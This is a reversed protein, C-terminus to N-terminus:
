GRLRGHGPTGSNADFTGAGMIDGTTTTLTGATGSSDQFKLNAGIGLLQCQLGADISVTYPGTGSLTVSGLAGGTFTMLANVGTAPVNVVGASQTITVTSGAAPLVGGTWNAAHSWNGDGANSVNWNAPGATLGTWNVNHGSDTSSGSATAAHVDPYVAPLVTGGDSADSDQVSVNAWTQTKVTTLNLLWQIGQTTSLLSTTGATPSIDMISNAASTTQTLTGAGFKITIGNAPLSKFSGGISNGGTFTTNSSVNITGAAASITLPGCVTTGSNNITVTGGASITVGATLMSTANVNLVGTGNVTVLSALTAGTSTADVQLVTLNGVTTTGPIARANTLPNNVIKVTIATAAVTSTKLNAFSTGANTGPDFTQTAGGVPSAFTLTQASNQVFEGGAFSVSQNATVNAGAGSNGTQADLEGINAGNNLLTIAEATLDSQLQVDNNATAAASGITISGQDTAVPTFSVATAGNNGDFLQTLHTPNTITVTGSQTYTTGKVELTATGAGPATITGSAGGTVGVSLAGSVTAQFAGTFALTGAHTNSANSGITLNGSFTTGNAGINIKPINTSVDDVTVPISGNFATASSLTLTGTITATATGIKNNFTLANTVTLTKNSAVTLSGGVTLAGTQITVNANVVLSGGGVGATTGFDDNGSPTFTSAGNFTLTKASGVTGLQVGNAGATGANTFNVNGTVTINAGSANLTGSNTTSGDGVQLAGTSVDGQLQFTQTNGGNQNDITLNSYAISASTGPVLITGAGGKGGYFVTGTGATDKLTGTVTLPTTTSGLMEITKTNYDLTAPTNVAISQFLFTTDSGALQVTDSAAATSVTLNGYNQSTTENDTFTQGTTGDFNFTVGSGANAGHLVQGTANTTWNGTLALVKGNLDLKTNAGVNVNSAQAATAPNGVQVTAVTTALQTAAGGGVNFNVSGLNPFPSATGAIQPGDMTFARLNPLAGGTNVTLTSTSSLTPGTGAGSTGLDVSGGNNVTLGGNIVTATAGNGLTVTGNGNATLGGNFTDTGSTCTLAAASAGGGVTTGTSLVNTGTGLTLTGGANILTGGALTINSANNGTVANSISTAGTVSLSAAASTGLNLTSAANASNVNLGGSVTLTLGNAVTVGAANPGAADLTLASAITPSDTQFTVSGGSKNIDLNAFNGVTALADVTQANSGTLQYTAGGNTFTGSTSAWNGQVQVTQTGTSNTLTGGNVTVNGEILPSQGALDLTAGSVTIGATLTLGSILKVTHTFPAQVTISNLAAPQVGTSPGVAANSAAVGAVGFFVDAKPSTPPDNQLWNSATDWATTSGVWIPQQDGLNVWGPATPGATAITNGGLDQSDAAGGVSFANPLGAPSPGGTVTSNKVKINNMKSGAAGANWALNWAGAGTLKTWLAGAAPPAGPPDINWVGLGNVTTTSGTGFTITIPFSTSTLTGDVTGGANGFTAGNTFTANAGNLILKKTGAFGAASGVVVPATFTTTATDLQLVSADGDVLVSVSPDSGFNAGLTASPVTAAVDLTAGTNVSTNRDVVLAASQVTVATSAGSAVLSGTITNSGPKFTQAVGGNFMLMRANAGNLGSMTFISNAGGVSFDVSGKATVNFFPGAGASGTASTADLTGKTITLGATTLDGQLVFSKAAAGLGTTDFTTNSYTIGSAGGSGAILVNGAPTFGCNFYLTGTGQTGYVTDFFKATGTINLPTQVLSGVFTVTKGNYKFQPTNTVPAMTFSEVTVNATGTGGDYTVVDNNDAVSVNGYNQGSPFNVASTLDDWAQAGAGNFNVGSGATAGNLISGGVGSDNVTLSGNANLVFGALNLTKTATVTANGVQVSNSGLSTTGGFTTAGFALTSSGATIAGTGLFTVSPNGPVSGAGNVLFNTTIQDNGGGLTLTGTANVTVGAEFKDQGALCTMARNITALGKVDIVPPAAGTMAFSSAATGDVTLAGDVTVNQNNVTVAYKNTAAVSLNGLLLVPDAQTPQFTVGGAAGTQNITVNSLTTAFASDISQAAIGSFTALSLPAPGALSGTDTYTGAGTCLLNANFVMQSQHNSADPSADLSGASVFQALGGVTLSSGNMTLKSSAGTVTLTGCLMPSANILKAVAGTDIQVNGYNQSGTASSWNKTGATTFDLLAGTSSYGSITLDSDCFITGAAGATLSGTGATTTVAGVFTAGKGNANFISSNNVTLAAASNLIAQLTVTTASDVLLTGVTTNLRPTLNQSGGSNMDVTVAAAVNQANGGQTYDGQVTLTAATSAQLTGNNGSGLSLTGTCKAAKGNLDLSGTGTADAITLSSMTSTAQSLSITAGNDITVAGYTSANTAGWTKGM